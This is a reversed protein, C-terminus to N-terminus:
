ARVTLLRNTQQFYEQIKSCIESKTSNVWRAYYSLRELTWDDLPEDPKLIKKRVLYDVLEDYDTPQNRKAPPAEMGLKWPITILDNKDFTTCVRGKKHFRHDDKGTTQQIRTVETTKDRIRFNGDYLLIGYIGYQEWPELRKDFIEEIVAAYVPNENPKTDRWGVEESPKFIRLRGEGKKFKTTVNYSVRDFITNYLTHVFVINEDDQSVEELPIEEVNSMLSDPKVKVAKPKTAKSKRKSKKTLRQTVAEIDETPEDLIYLLNSFYQIIESLAENPGETMYSSIAEELLTIRGESNLSEILTELEPSGAPLQLIQDVIPAQQEVESLALYDTVSVERTAILDSTYVELAQSAQGSALLPFERQLFFRDGDEYLYSLYGYRDYIVRKQSITLALARDVEVNRYADLRTYIEQRTLTFEKSFIEALRTSIDELIEDIYYVDYTSLDLTEPMPDFCQYQCPAYDCRSSYDVDTVRVNREYNLYCDVAVQKLIRLMRRINYDKQDALEYM